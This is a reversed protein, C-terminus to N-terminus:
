LGPNEIFGDKIAWYIEMCALTDPMASHAGELTKGTFYLYAETLTHGKNGGMIKRANVLTCYYLSKDKWEPTPIVEDRFRKMAIRILRNDFTMNHAIRLCCQRYLDIFMDLAEDEPIGEDMAREQSIGNIETIEPTIVWGDPRIIVDLAAIEKRSESDVLVAGLQVLHPQNEGGSPEQWQPLGTTETDFGLLLDM